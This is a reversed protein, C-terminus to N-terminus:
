GDYYVPLVLMVRLGRERGPLLTIGYEEGYKLSIRRSVNMMGVGGGGSGERLMDNRRRIEEVSMGDGDDEVCLYLVGEREFGSITICGSYDRLTFGHRISNEVIPQLVLRLINTELLSEPVEFRSSIRGNYRINMIKLYNQVNDLEERLPWVSSDNRYLPVLMNGLALACESIRSNGELEALCKITNLSNYLFHPNIQNRLHRLESERLERAAQEQRETLHKLRRLMENHSDILLEIEAGGRAEVFGDYDGRGARQMSRSLETVPSLTRDVWVCYLLTVTVDGCLFAVAMCGVITLLERRYVSVLTESVLVMGGGTPRWTVLRGDLQAEGPEELSLKESLAYRSGIREKDTSSLVVGGSDVILYEKVGQRCLAEYLGCVEAENLAIVCTVSRSRYVGNKCCLLLQREETVRNDYLPFDSFYADGVVGFRSSAQHVAREANGSLMLEPQLFMRTNTRTFGMLLDGRVPVWVSDICPMYKMRTRLEKVLDNIIKTQEAASLKGRDALKACNSMTIDMMREAEDLMQVISNSLHDMELGAISDNLRRLARDTMVSVVPLVIILTLCMCVVMYLLLRRRISCFSGRIKEALGKM